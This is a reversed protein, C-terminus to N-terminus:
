LARRLVERVQEAHMQVHWQKTMHWQQVSRRAGADELWALATRLEDPTDCWYEGGSSTEIYGAERACIIPTGSAQANALKVNSKWHVAPYSRWQSGRLALMVDVDAHQMPNLIFKAGIRECEREITEHWGELYAPRGEYGVLRISDRIPNVRQGPRAHHYILSSLSPAAALLECDSRMRENPWIVGTPELHALWDHAWQMAARQSTHDGARQPYADVIDYVWPRDARRLAHLLEDPVRKVVLVVDHAKIDQATANAKVTAGLAAGIQEGRIAWSAAGGRGTVLVRM